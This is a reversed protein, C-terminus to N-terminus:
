PGPDPGIIRPIRFGMSSEVTGLSGSDLLAACRDIAYGREGAPGGGAGTGPMAPPPRTMM